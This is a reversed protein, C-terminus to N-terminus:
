GIRHKAVVGARLQLGVGPQEPLSYFGKTVHVPEEWIENISEYCNEVLVCNPTAAALQVHLKQQVNTHPVVPLNHCAALAAVELWEDIGMLKTSDAQV